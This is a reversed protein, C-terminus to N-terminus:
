CIALKRDRLVKSNILCAPKMCVLSGAEGAKTDTNIKTSDEWTTSVQASPSWINVIQPYRQELYCYQDTAVSTVKPFCAVTWIM